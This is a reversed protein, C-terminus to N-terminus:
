EVAGSVGSLSYTPSELDCEERLTLCTLTAFVLLGLAKAGGFRNVCQGDVCADCTLSPCREGESNLESRKVDKVHECGIPDTSGAGFPESHIAGRRDPIGSAHQSVGSTLEACEVLALSTQTGATKGAQERADSRM